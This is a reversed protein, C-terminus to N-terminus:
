LLAPLVDKKIAPPLPRPTFIVGQEVPFFCKEVSAKIKNELGVSLTGLWPLHLYVPCKKVSHSTLSTFTKLKRAIPKEVVHDPYNNLLLISFNKRLETQLKRDSCIM